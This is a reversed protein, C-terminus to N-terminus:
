FISVLELLSDLTDNTISYPDEPKMIIIDGIKIQGKKGHAEITGAGSVCLYTIDNGLEADANGQLRQLPAIKVKNVKHKNYEISDINVGQQQLVNKGGRFQGINTKFM